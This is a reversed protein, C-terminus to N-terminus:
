PSPQRHPIKNKKERSIFIASTPLLAASRLETGVEAAEKAASKAKKKVVKRKKKVSNEKNYKALCECLFTLFLLTLVLQVIGCCVYQQSTYRVECGFIGHIFRIM